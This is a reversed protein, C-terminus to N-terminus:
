LRYPQCHKNVIFYASSCPCLIFIICIIANTFCRMYYNLNFANFHYLHFRLPCFFVSVWFFYKFFVLRAFLCYRLFTRLLYPQAKCNMLDFVFPLGLM